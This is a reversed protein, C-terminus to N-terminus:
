PNVADSERPSGGGLEDEVHHHNEADRLRFYWPSIHSEPPRPHRVNGPNDKPKERQSHKCFLRVKRSSMNKSTARNLQWFRIARAHLKLLWAPPPALATLPPGCRLSSSRSPAFRATCDDPGAERATTPQDLIEMEVFSLAPAEMRWTPAVRSKLCVAHYDKASLLHFSRPRHLCDEHVTDPLSRNASPSHGRGRVTRPFTAACVPSIGKQAGKCHRCRSQEASLLVNRFCPTLRRRHHANNLHRSFQRHHNVSFLATSAKAFM